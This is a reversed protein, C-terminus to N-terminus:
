PTTPVMNRIAAIKWLGDERTLVMTTHMRLDSGDARGLSLYPGDVIAVDSTVFRITELDITRSGGTSQTTSVSGEIVADRGSRFRSSTLMQDVDATLLAALGQADNAERTDIFAQVVARIAAEDAARADQTGFAIDRAAGTLELIHLGTGARDLAYIYGRDDLNVNNTQIVRDCHEIGGVEICSETTNETVEPIFYAVEVPRFPDRIDVVRVGANFYALVVLKKDFDPHYADAFSHPGFRGGRNCFDGPEEPVQFSSIPIPRDEETIDFIFLAHRAEQCRFAGAESVVLLLDRIRADRNDAYDAIEFDYIPKATHAGWYSPLDLRAIVPYELNRPTPAFPDRLAPDGNLLKDLDVIQVTGDNGSNYGLYLRNGAVFPQHLGAIEPPPYPGAADPAYTTLGFDRIHRPAAPNGVDFVQLARTVRWGQPTGNMYAIGRECDWQFKHTERNGRDSEPRSSVGTEAITTLFRPRAPDTVDLVEYSLAGNTRIAYVRDPDARPLTSGDCVQVHQTGDAVDGTPPVHALYRPKAPDTVDLISLGNREINGTMSNLAEGAHHGVFLIRREGYRHVVPQYASRAQLDHQGVLRLNVAVGQAFASTGLTLGAFSAGILWSTRISHKMQIGDTSGSALRYAPLANM